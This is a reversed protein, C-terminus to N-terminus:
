KWTKIKNFFKKKSQEWLNLYCSSLLNDLSIQLDKSHEFVPFNWIESKEPELFFPFGPVM